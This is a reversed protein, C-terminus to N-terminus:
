LAASPEDMVILRADHSLARAMSVVQKGAPSLRGVETGPRIEGHGLRALLKRTAAHMEGRRTFGLTAQEHGLFINEAVSLGDVLDLEQYITAIGQRMAATPNSLRVPQGGLLVEGSDPQHAGALVKILTSKGAGNQGLLCHVEGARVDLDVGDLARVGPFQKVIGQMTLLSASDPASQPM